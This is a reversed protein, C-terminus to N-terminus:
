ANDKPPFPLTRECGQIKFVPEAAEDKYVEEVPVPHLEAFIQLIELATKASDEDVRPGWAKVMLKMLGNDTWGSVKAAQYAAAKDKEPTTRWTESGMDLWDLVDLKIGQRQVDGNLSNLNHSVSVSAPLIYDESM